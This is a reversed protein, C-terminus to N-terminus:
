NDNGRFVEILEIEAEPFSMEWGDEATVWVSRSGDRWPVYEDITVIQNFYASRKNVCRGKGYAM